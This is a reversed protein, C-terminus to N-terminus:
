NFSIHFNRVVYTYPPTNSYSTCKHLYTQISSIPCLYLSPQSCIHNSFFPSMAPLLLQQIPQHTPPFGPYNPFSEACYFCGPQIMSLESTSVKVLKPASNLGTLSGPEPATSPGPRSSDYQM